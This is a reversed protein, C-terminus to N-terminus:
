ARMAAEEPHTTKAVNSEAFVDMEQAARPRHFILRPQSSNDFFLLAGANAAFTELNARAQGTVPATSRYVIHDGVLNGYWANRSEPIVELHKLPVEGNKSMWTTPSTLKELNEITEIAKEQMAPGDGALADYLALQMAAADLVKDLNERFEAEKRDIENIIKHRLTKEKADIGEAEPDFATRYDSFLKEMKGSNKLERLKLVGQLKAFRTDDDFVSYNAFRSTLAFGHTDKFSLNDEIQLDKGNGELSHGPDIAFFKGGAFGKNQGLRGVADRDALVLFTAKYKGLSELKENGPPVIRGDKIYGNGM